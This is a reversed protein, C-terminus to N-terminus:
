NLRSAACSTWAWPSRSTGCSFNSGGAGCSLEALAQDSYLVRDLLTSALIITETRFGPVVVHFRVLRIDLLPPLENWLCKGWSELLAPKPWQMRSGTRVLKRRGDVRVVADVGKRQLLALFGWGCFGRDALIVEGSQIWGILTRAMSLEHRKFSDLAFRVM